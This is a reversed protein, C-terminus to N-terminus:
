FFTIVWGTYFFYDSLKHLFTIVWGTYFFYDRLRHLFFYDSLKHLFTIVWGTYFFYDRLRHLFFYDRLWDKPFTELLSICRHWCQTALKRWIWDFILSSVLTDDCYRKACNPNLNILHQVLTCIKGQFVKLLFEIPICTTFPLEFHFYM